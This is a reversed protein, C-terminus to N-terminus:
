QGLNVMAIIFWIAGSIVSCLILTISTDSIAHARRYYKKYLEDNDDILDIVYSMKSKAMGCCIWAVVPIFIVGVIGGFANLSSASSLYRKVEREDRKTYDGMDRRLYFHVVM